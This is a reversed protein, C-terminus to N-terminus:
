NQQERLKRLENNLGIAMDSTSSIKMSLQRMVELATAPSESVLKLFRNAPIKLTKVPERAIISANRPLDMFVGMEGLLNNKGVTALIVVNSPDNDRVIDVEGELIVYVSDSHDNLKFLYEGSNFELAESTFALLKLQATDSGSLLPIQKLQEANQYIDM